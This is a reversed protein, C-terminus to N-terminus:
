NAEAQMDLQEARGCAAAVSTCAHECLVLGAQHTAAPRLLLSIPTWGVPRAVKHVTITADVGAPFVLSMDLWGWVDGEEKYPHWAGPVQAAIAVAMSMLEAHAQQVSLHVSQGDKAMWALQNLVKMAIM